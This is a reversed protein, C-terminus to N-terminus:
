LEVLCGDDPEPEPEDFDPPEFETPVAADESLGAADKAYSGMQYESCASLLALTSVLRLM